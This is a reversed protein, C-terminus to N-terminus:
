RRRRLVMFGLSGLGALLAFSSPEPVAAIQFNDIGFINAFTGAAFALDTGTNYTFNFGVNTTGTVNASPLSVGNDLSDELFLITANGGTGSVAFPKAGGGWGGQTGDILIGDDAGYGSVEAFWYRGTNQGDADGTVDFSVTYEQGNSFSSGDFIVSVARANTGRWDQVRAMGISSIANSSGVGSGDGEAADNIGMNGANYVWSGLSYSGGNGLESTAGNNQITTPSSFDENIIQAGVQGAVLISACAGLTTITTNKM